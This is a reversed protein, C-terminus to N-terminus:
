KEDAEFVLDYFGLELIRIANLLARKTFFGTSVAEQWPKVAELMASYDQETLNLLLHDIENLNDLVLGLKRSRVLEAQPSNSPVIVPLGAALYLSLRKSNVYGYYDNYDYNTFDKFNQANVLGFGGELLSPLENSNKITQFEVSGLFKFKDNEKNQSYIKLPAAARYDIEKLGRHILFNLQKKFTKEKLPGQYRFDWLQMPFSPVTVKDEELRKSMKENATLLLDFKRLQSLFFDKLPEYDQAYMWPTVDHVLAVLKVNPKRRLQNIFEEQFNLQTWLPFQIVVLDNEQVVSTLASIIKERRAPQNTLNPFSIYDIVSFDIEEASLAINQNIVYDIGQNIADNESSIRTIWYTM